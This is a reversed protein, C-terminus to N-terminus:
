FFCFCFMIPVYLCVQLQDNGCAESIGDSESQLDVLHQGPSSDGGFDVDSELAIGAMADAASIDVM